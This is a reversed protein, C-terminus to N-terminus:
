RLQIALADSAVFGALSSPDGVVWQAHLQMGGFGSLQPLSFVYSALGSTNYGSTMGAYTVATNSSGLLLEVGGITYSNAAAAIDWLVFSPQNPPVNRVGITSRQTGLFVPELAISTVTGHSTSTGTGYHHAMLNRTESALMPRDFPYTESEVRPDTLTELFAVIDSIQTKTLNRPRIEVAQNVHFDGGRNYFEIAETLSQAGGNHFWTGHLAVNRMPPTRFRGMDSQNQTRAGVGPDEFIPRIGINHSNAVPLHGYGNGAAHPGLLSAMTGTDSHCQACAAASGQAQNFLIFGRQEAPKRTAFNRMVLDHKSRDAVQSRVYTAIAMIIRAPTATNGPGFAQEFLPDYRTASGIFNALRPPLNSALALPRVARIKTAVDTWTRGHHGMEVPDLPPLSILQELMTNGTLVTQGTLPDLFDGATIRGDYFLTTLYASNIISPAKRTTVQAKGAFSGHALYRGSADQPVVGGSAHIDDPTGYVGDPGPHVLGRSRPDSGGASPIHCTGCATMNSSSLQEDWFLSMGLLVKAQTIPNGAPVSPPM